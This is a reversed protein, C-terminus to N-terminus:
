GVEIRKADYVEEHKWMSLLLAALKRALTLKAMTPKTGDALRRQYGLRLPEDASSLSVVTTAAGKFVAKLMHNHNQNLGRTANVTVRQWSGDPLQDWDSSSRM